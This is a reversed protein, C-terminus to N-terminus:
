KVDGLLESITVFGYGQGRLAEIIGPLALVTQKSGNHLLVIAGPQAEKVVKDKLVKASEAFNQEIEFDETFETYDEANVTWGIIRYKRAELERTLAEPLKGGPPRFFKAREGTISRIIEGTKEIGALAVKTSVGDMRTHSYSHNAVEYGSDYMRYVLDQNQEVEKGIVFFTAKVGYKDLVDLIDTTGTIDPGDDFTLAVVRKDVPGKWIMQACACTSLLFSFFLVWTGLGLVRTRLGLDRTGLGLDRTGIRVRKIKLSIM